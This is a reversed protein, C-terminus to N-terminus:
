TSWTSDDPKRTSTVRGLVWKLCWDIVLSIGVGLIGPLVVPLVMVSIGIVKLADMKFHRNYARKPNFLAGWRVGAWMRWRTLWDVGLEQMIRRFIGDVDYSAIEHYPLKDTILWDHVIAAPTYDGYRPILWSVIRPVTAFDTIYGAPVYFSEYKGDYVVPAILEWRVADIPRVIPKTQFPM